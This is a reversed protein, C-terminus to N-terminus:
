RPRMVRASTAQLEPFSLAKASQSARRLPSSAASFSIPEAYQTLSAPVVTGNAGNLFTYAVIGPGIGATTGYQPSDDYWAHHWAEQTTFGVKFTVRRATWHRNFLWRVFSTQSFLLQYNGIYIDNPLFQFPITYIESGPKFSASIM